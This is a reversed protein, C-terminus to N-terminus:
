GGPPPRLGGSEAVYLTLQPDDDEGIVVRKADPFRETIATGINLLQPEPELLQAPIIFVASGLLHQPIDTPNFSDIVTFDDAFLRLAPASASM